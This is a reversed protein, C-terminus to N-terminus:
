RLSNVLGYAGYEIMYPLQYGPFEKAFRESLEKYWAGAGDLVSKDATRALAARVLKEARDLYRIQERVGLDLRVPEGRGGYVITSAPYSDAIEHLDKKWGELTPVPKGNVIGGELWAHAQFHVLDGVFLANASPVSVVTQTSSVGPSTLEQLQLREGGRLVLDMKGNFTQDVPVPQPYTGKPFMKAMEVFFYEKYAHVGPIAAATAASSLIRAGLDRFVSAGNFKDPNPHTIVLWTIPKDTFTRLHAISKKALEPTFQADIAVVEQEGEVFFTRTDFGNADSQYSIVRPTFTSANTHTAAASCGTTIAILALTSFTKM